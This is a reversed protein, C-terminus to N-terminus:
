IKGFVGINKVIITEFYIKTYLNKYFCKGIHGWVAPYISVIIPTIYGNTKILLQAFVIILM